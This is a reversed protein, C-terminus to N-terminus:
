TLHFILADCMVRDEKSGKHWFIRVSPPFKIFNHCFYNQLTKKLCQTFREREAIDLLRLRRWSYGGHRDIWHEGGQQRWASISLVYLLATWGKQQQPGSGDYGVLSRAVDRMEDRRIGPQHFFTVVHTCDVIM